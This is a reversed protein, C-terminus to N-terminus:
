TSGPIQSLHSFFVKLQAVHLDGTVAPGATGSGPATILDALEMPFWFSTQCPLSLFPWACSGSGVPQSTCVLGPAGSLCVGRALVCLSSPEPDQSLRASVTGMQLPHQHKYQARHSLSNALFLGGSVERGLILPRGDAETAFQM